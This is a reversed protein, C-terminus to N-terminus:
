SRIFVTPKGIEGEAGSLRKKIILVKKEFGKQINFIVSM